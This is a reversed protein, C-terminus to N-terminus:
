QASGKMQLYEEYSIVKLTQFSYNAPTVVGANEILELCKIAAEKQTIFPTSDGWGKAGRFPCVPDKTDWLMWGLPISEETFGEGELTFANSSNHLQNMPTKSRQASPYMGGLHNRKDKSQPISLGRQTNGMTSFVIM